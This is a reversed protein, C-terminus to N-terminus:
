RSAALSTGPRRSRTVPTAPRRSISRIAPNLPTDGYNGIDRDPYTRWLMRGGLDFGTTQTYTTSGVIWSHKTERGDKDFNYQITANANAATTLYGVNCRFSV